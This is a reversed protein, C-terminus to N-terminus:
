DWEDSESHFNFESIFLRKLEADDKLEGKEERRFRLKSVDTISGRFALQKAARRIAEISNRTPYTLTERQRAGAINELVLLVESQGGRLRLFVQDVTQNM